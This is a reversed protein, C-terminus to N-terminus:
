LLRQCLKIRRARLTNVADCLKGSLIKHLIKGSVVENDARGPEVSFALVEDTGHQLNCFRMILYANHIILKARRGARLLQCLRDSSKKGGIIVSQEM